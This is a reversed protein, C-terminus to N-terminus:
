TARTSRAARQHQSDRPLGQARRRVPRPQHQHFRHRQEHAVAMTNPKLPCTSVTAGSRGRARTTAYRASLRAAAPGPIRAGCPLRGPLLDRSGQRADRGGTRVDGAARGGAQVRRRCRTARGSSTFPAPFGGAVSPASPPATGNGTAERTSCCRTPMASARRFTAGPPLRRTRRRARGHREEAALRAERTVPLRASVWAGFGGDLLQVRPHGFYELFWFARAARIGSQEDYVVVPTSETVGRLNFLHDIMWM